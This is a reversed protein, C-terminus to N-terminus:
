IFSFIINFNTTVYKHQYGQHHENHLWFNILMIFLNKFTFVTYKVDVKSKVVTRWM